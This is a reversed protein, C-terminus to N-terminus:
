IEPLQQFWIDQDTSSDSPIKDLVPITEKM